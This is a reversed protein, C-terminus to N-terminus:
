TNANKILRYTFIALIIVVMVGHVWWLGLVPGILGKHLWAKGLFLLNGYIIYLLIAPLLQTFKGRRPNVRSLPFALFALVVTSIPMAMRWHLEAAVKPDHRLPWLSKTSANTPWGSQKSVQSSIRIGYEKYDIIQFDAQGPVGHYKYGHKFLMFNNDGPLKKQQAVKALTIDWIQAGSANPKQRLAFFIDQMEQTTHSINDAYFVGDSGLSQFRKPAVKEITAQAISEYFIRIRSKDMIPELWLMLGAVVLAVITTVSLVITLLNSPSVGCAAMVTMENDLYLRGFVLLISIYFSLPILYGLLFPIQLSMLKMVASMTISGEAAYHLYHIFQNSMFIILLVLIIGILSSYLEKSIYRFIIM